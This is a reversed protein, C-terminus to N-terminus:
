GAPTPAPAPATSIVPARRAVASKGPAKDHAGHPDAPTSEQRAQRCGSGILVVLSVGFVLSRITMSTLGQEAPPYCDSEQGDRRDKCARRGARATGHAGGSAERRSRIERISGRRSQL